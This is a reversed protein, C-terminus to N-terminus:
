TIHFILDGDERGKQEEDKRPKDPRVALPNKLSGTERIMDRVRGVVGVPDAM